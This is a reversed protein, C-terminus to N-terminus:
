FNFGAIIKSPPYIERLQIIWLSPAPSYVNEVELTVCPLILVRWVVGGQRYKPVKSLSLLLLQLYPFYPKLTNRDQERLAKNIVFYISNERPDSERTYLNIASIEDDTLTGRKDVDLQSAFMSCTFGFQSIGKVHSELSQTIQDFTIIPRDFLGIIPNLIERPENVMDKIKLINIDHLGPNDQPNV